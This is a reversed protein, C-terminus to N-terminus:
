NAPAACRFGLNHIRFDPELASRGAARGYYGYGRWSGGRAVRSATGELSERGDDAQYPYPRYQSQVWEWVNGAMNHVGYPSVGQPYSGVPGTYTYGDDYGPHAHGSRCNSDCFNLRSGDFENGWPYLRGDMGGAAKEWEAETPLRAGRWECYSRAEHWSVCVVPHDARDAEDYTPTGLNCSTPAQCHGAEVCQRYRTNTVEYQDIYFAALTVTHKPEEPEFQRRECDDGVALKRCEALATGAQSGMEFPGAPVLAMPVDYDDRILQPTPEGAQGGCGTVVLLVILLVLRSGSVINGPLRM